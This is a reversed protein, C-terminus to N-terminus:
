TVIGAPVLTTIRRPSERPLPLSVGTIVTLWPLESTQKFLGVEMGEIGETVVVKGAVELKLPENGGTEDENDVVTENGLPILEEREEREETMLEASDAAELKVSM